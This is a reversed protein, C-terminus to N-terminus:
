WKPEEETKLDLEKREMKCVGSNALSQAFFTRFEKQCKDPVLAGNRRLLLTGFHQM